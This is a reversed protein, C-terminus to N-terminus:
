VKARVHYMLRKLQAFIWSSLKAGMFAIFFYYATSIPSLDIVQNLKQWYEKYIKLGHRRARCLGGYTRNSYEKVFAKFVTANNDLDFYQIAKFLGKNFELNSFISNRDALLANEGSSTVGGYANEGDSISNIMLEDFYYAGYKYIVSLFLYVQFYNLNKFKEADLNIITDRKFILGSFLISDYVYKIASAEGSPIIHSKNYKRKMDHFPGYWFPSFILAPKNGTTDLFTILKDLVGPYIVDDDSMYFVYTGKALNMLHKLNRDYGLNQENSNFAIHYPSSFAINEVVSKIKEKQPSCDESVIIEVKDTLSADVSRICRELEKVRKYSAICISLLYSM